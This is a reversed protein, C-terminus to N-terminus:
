RVKRRRRPSREEGRAEHPLVAARPRMLINIAAIVLIGAITAWPQPLFSWDVGDLMTLLQGLGVAIVAALNWLWTRWRRLHDWIDQLM